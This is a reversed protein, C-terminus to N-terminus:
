QQSRSCNAKTSKDELGGRHAGAEIPWHPVLVEEQIQSESKSVTSIRGKEFNEKRM